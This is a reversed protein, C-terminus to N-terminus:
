KEQIQLCKGLLTHIKFKGPPSSSTWKNLNEHEKAIFLAPSSLELIGRPESIEIENVCPSLTHISWRVGAASVPPELRLETIQFPCQTFRCVRSLFIIGPPDSAISTQGFKVSLHFCLSLKGLCWNKSLNM